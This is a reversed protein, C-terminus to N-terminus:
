QIEFRNHWVLCKRNRQKLAEINAKTGKSRGDWIAFGYDARQQMAQDKATHPGPIRVEKWNGVNNRAKSGSYYVLVQKTRGRLVRQVLTDVGPADGVLVLHGNKVVSNIRDVVESPLVKISISGSIFVTAM